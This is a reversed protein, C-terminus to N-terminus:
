PATTYGANAAAISIAILGVFLLIYGITFVYGLITGALALGHGQEGTRKIQSLSIHGCIIGGLPVVFALVLAVIALVNTRGGATPAGTYPTSQPPTPQYDSM